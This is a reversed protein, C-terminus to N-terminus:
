LILNLILILLSIYLLSLSYGGGKIELLSIKDCGLITLKRASNKQSTSESDVTSDQSLISTNVFGASCTSDLIKSASEYTHTIVNQKNNTYSHFIAMLEQTCKSCSPTSGNPFRIGLPLLYLYADDVVSEITSFLADTYCYRAKQTSNSSNDSRSNLIRTNESYNYHYNENRKENNLSISNLITSTIPINAPSLAVTKSSEGSSQTKLSGGAQTTTEEIIFNTSEDGYITLCTAQYVQGYSLFDNYAQIVLPNQLAYDESCHKPSILNEGLEIMIQSCETNNVSCSVDLVYEVVEVGSRVIGVYSQSNKLFFSMPYCNIFSENKLFTAFFDPCAPQTFNTGLSTDFATPLALSTNIPQSFTM